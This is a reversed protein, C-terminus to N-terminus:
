RKKEAFYVVQEATYYTASGIYALQRGPKWNYYGEAEIGMRLLVAGEPIASSLEDFAAMWNPHKSKCTVSQERSIEREAAAIAAMESEIRARACKGCEVALPNMEGKFLAGELFERGCRTHYAVVNGLRYDNRCTPLRTMQHYTRAASSTAYLIYKPKDEQVATTAEAITM